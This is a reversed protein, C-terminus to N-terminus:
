THDTRAKGSRVLTSRMTTTMRRRPRRRICFLFPARAFHGTASLKVCKALLVNQPESVCIGGLRSLCGGSGLDLPPRPRFWVAHLGSPRHLCHSVHNTRPSAQSQLQRRRRCSRSWVLGSTNSRNRDGQFLPWVSFKGWSAPGAGRRFAGKPSRCFTVGQSARSSNQSWGM